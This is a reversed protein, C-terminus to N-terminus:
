EAPKGDDDFEKIKSLFIREIAMEKRSLDEIALEMSKKIGLVVVKDYPKTIDTEEFTPLQNCWVPPLYGLWLYARILKWTFDKTSKKIALYYEDEEKFWILTITELKEVTKRINGIRNKQIKFGPLPYLYNLEPDFTGNDIEDQTVGFPFFWKGYNAKLDYKIRNTYLAEKSYEIFLPDIGLETIIDEVM